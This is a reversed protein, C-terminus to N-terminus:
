WDTKRLQEVVDQEGTYDGLPTNDEKALLVLEVVVQLLFERLAEPLKRALWLRRLEVNM